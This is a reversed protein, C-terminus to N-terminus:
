INHGFYIMLFFGRNLFLFRSGIGQNRELRRKELASVRQRFLKGLAKLSTLTKELCEREIERERDARGSDVALREQSSEGVHM